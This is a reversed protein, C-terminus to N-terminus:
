VIGNGEREAFERVFKQPSRLFQSTPGFIASGPSLEWIQLLGREVLVQAASTVDRESWRDPDDLWWQRVGELTDKAEPHKALYALIELGVERVTGPLDM